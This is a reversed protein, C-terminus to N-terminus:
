AVAVAEPMLEYQGPRVSVLGRSRIVGGWDPHAHHQPTMQDDFGSETVFLGSPSLHLDVIQDLMREPNPLHEFVHWCVAVDYEEAPESGLVTLPIGHKEARWRMFDRMTPNLEWATVSAGSRAAFLAATGIGAGYDLVRKGGVELGELGTWAGGGRLHWNALDCIYALGVDERRYFDADSQMPPKSEWLQATLTPGEEVMRRVNGADEGSWESIDSMLTDLLPEGWVPQTAAVDLRDTGTSPLGEKAEAMDAVTFPYLGMHQLIISQDAWVKFGLQRARECFAWDESLSHVAGDGEEVTFPFFFQYFPISGGKTARHMRHTGDIDAFEGKVMQEIVDRHIAFFGTALYQIELPRREPTHYIHVESGPLFRSSIHPTTSRVVYMGGYISRTERAGEVIKWFDAADWVVDDDIIVMVDCDAFEEDELFKTALMSRSRALLADNWLSEWKVHDDSNPNSRMSAWICVATRVDMQRWISPALYVSM